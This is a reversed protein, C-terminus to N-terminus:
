LFGKTLNGFLVSLTVIEDGKSRDIIAAAESVFKQTMVRLTEADEKSVNVVNVFPNEKRARFISILHTLMTLVTDPSQSVCMEAGDAMEIFDDNWRIVGKKCLADAAILGGDGLFKRITETTGMKMLSFVLVFCSNFDKWEDVLEAAFTKPQDKVTMRSYFRGLDPWHREAMEGAEEPTAVVQWLRLCTQLSPDAQGIHIRRITNYPIDTQNALTQLSRGPRTRLWRDLLERMEDSLNKGM